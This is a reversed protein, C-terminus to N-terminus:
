EVKKLWTNFEVATPKEEPYFNRGDPLDMIENEICGLVADFDPSSIDVDGVPSKRKLRQYMASYKKADTKGRGTFLNWLYRAAYIRTIKEERTLVKEDAASVADLLKKEFVADYLEQAGLDTGSTYRSLLTTSSETMELMDDVTISNKTLLAVTKEDDEATISKLEWAKNRLPRFAEAYFAPLSIFAADFQAVSDMYANKGFLSVADELVLLNPENAVTSKQEQLNKIIGLRSGLILVKADDKVLKVAANYSSVAQQKRGDILCVIGRLAELRAVLAKNMGAEQISADVMSFIQASEKVERGTPLISEADKLAVAAELEQIDDFILFDDSSLVVDGKNGSACSSLALVVAFLASFAGLWNRKM